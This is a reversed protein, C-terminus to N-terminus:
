RGGSGNKLMAFHRYWWDMLLKSFFRYSEDGPVYELYFENGLLSMLEGFGEEDKSQGTEDLYLQYLQTKPVQNQISIETLISKAVAEMDRKDDIGAYYERLRLYYHQFFSKYDTGLLYNEYIERVFEPTISRNQNRSERLLATIMIQIFFPIPTGINELIAKSIDDNIETGEGEFLAKIFAAAKEHSFPGVKIRDMDNIKAICDIQGLLHELCISGGILFRLKVDDPMTIRLTRLWGLFVKTEESKREQDRKIMQKIMEPFEDLIFLLNKENETILKILQKGLDKWGMDRSERLKLRIESIEIEEIREGAGRFFSSLGNKIKGWLKKNKQIEEILEMVFEEPSEVHEIDFFLPTFDKEPNDRLHFMISTKGFRRPAALLVSSRELSDWIEQVTEERDFFDDGKVPAGQTLRIKNCM